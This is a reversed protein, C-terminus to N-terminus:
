YHQAQSAIERKFPRRVIASGDMVQCEKEEFVEKPKKRHFSKHTGHEM